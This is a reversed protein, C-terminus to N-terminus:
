LINFLVMKDLRSLQLSLQMILMCDKYSRLLSGSAFTIGSIVPIPGSIIYRVLSIINLLVSYQDFVLM